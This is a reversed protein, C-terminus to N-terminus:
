KLLLLNKSITKITAVLQVSSLYNGFGMPSFYLNKGISM